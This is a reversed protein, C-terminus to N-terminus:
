GSSSQRSWRVSDRNQKGNDEVAFGNKNGDCRWDACYYRANMPVDLRVGGIEMASGQSREACDALTLKTGCGRSCKKGEKSVLYALGVGVRVRDSPSLAALARYSIRCLKSKRSLSQTVFKRANKSAYRPGPAEPRRIGSFKKAASSLFKGASACGQSEAVKKIACADAALIKKTPNKKVPKFM